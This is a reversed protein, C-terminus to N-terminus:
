RDIVAWCTSEFAKSAAAAVTPLLYLRARQWRRDAARHDPGAMYGCWANRTASNPACVPRLIAPTPQRNGRFIRSGLQVTLDLKRDPGSVVRYLLNRRTLMNLVEDMRAVQRGGGRYECAGADAASGANQSVAASQWNRSVPRIPISSRMRPLSLPRPQRWRRPEPPCSRTIRRGCDANFVGATPNSGPLRPPRRNTRRCACRPRRYKRSAAAHRAWPHPRPLGRNWLPPASATVYFHAAFAPAPAAAACCFVLARVKM